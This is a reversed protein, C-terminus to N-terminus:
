ALPELITSGGFRVIWNELLWGVMEQEQGTAQAAIAELQDFESPEGTAAAVIALAQEHLPGLPTPPTLTARDGKTIM